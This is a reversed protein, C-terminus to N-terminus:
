RARRRAEAAVLPGTSAISLSMTMTAAASSFLISAQARAYARLMRRESRWHHRALNAAIGYLWPRVPRAPDFREWNRYAVSFTAAALDDAATAGVEGACTATYHHSSLASRTM